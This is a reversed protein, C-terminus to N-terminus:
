YLEKVAFSASTAFSYPFGDNTNEELCSLSASRKGGQPSNMEYAVNNCRYNEIRYRGKANKAGKATFFKQSLASPQSGSKQGNCYFNANTKPNPPNM